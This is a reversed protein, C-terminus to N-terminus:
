LNPSSMKIQSIEGIDKLNYSPLLISWPEIKLDEPPLGPQSCSRTHCLGRGHRWSVDLVKNGLAILILSTFRHIESM